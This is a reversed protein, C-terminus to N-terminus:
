RHILPSFGFIDRQLVKATLQQWNATNYTYLTGFSITRLNGSSDIDIDGVTNLGSAKLIGVGTIPNLLWVSGLQTAYLSGDPAFDIAGPTTFNGIGVSGSTGSASVQGLLSGTSSYNYIQRAGFFTDRSIMVITGDAAVAIATMPEPTIFLDRCVGNIVDINVVTTDSIALVQGDPRIDAASYGTCGDKLATLIGTATDISYFKGFPFEQAFTGAGIPLPNIAQTASITITAPTSSTIGDNVVLSVSYSGAVDAVFNTSASTSSTLVASSGAPRVLFAWTYTLSDNDADKSGTGNLNISTGLLATQNSGADAVPATNTSKTKDIQLKANNISNSDAKVSFITEVASNLKYNINGSIVQSTYYNSVDLKNSIITLDDGSAGDLINLAIKALTSQGTELWNVYFKLGSPDADRGFLNQYINNVLQTNNLSSFRNTYEESNGFSDIIGQLNGNNNNLRGVWYDLGDPDAPRAYYAIYAKQVIDTQYSAFVPSNAILLLAIIILSVIHSKRALFPYTYKSWAFNAVYDSVTM